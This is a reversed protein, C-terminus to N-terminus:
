AHTTRWTSPQKRANSRDSAPNGDRIQGVVDQFVSSQMEHNKNSNEHSCDIMVNQPLHHQNLLDACQALTNADYNSGTRGGRLVIHVKSNGNTSVLGLRGHQDIDLFRHPAAISTIANLATVLSGDTGNKVGITSQLGSAIERHTQSEMTRAGIASWAVLDQIYHTIM